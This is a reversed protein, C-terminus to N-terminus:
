KCPHEEEYKKLLENLRKDHLQNSKEVVQENILRKKRSSQVQLAKAPVFEGSFYSNLLTRFYGVPKKINEIQGALEDLLLQVDQNDMNTIM